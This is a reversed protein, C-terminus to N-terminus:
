AWTGLAGPVWSQQDGAQFYRLFNGEPAESAVLALVMLNSILNSLVNNPTWACTDYIYIYIYIFIDPCQHRPGGQSVAGGGGHPYVPGHAMYIAIYPGMNTFLHM